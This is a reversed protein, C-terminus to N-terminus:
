LALTIPKISKQSIVDGCVLLSELPPLPRNRANLALLQTKGGNLKLKNCAMWADVDRICAEIHSRAANMDDPCSTKFTIYLQIDDAFLHYSLGHQRIVDGLPSVYM